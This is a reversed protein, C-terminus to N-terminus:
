PSGQEPAPQPPPNRDSRVEWPHIEAKILQKFRRQDPIPIGQETGRMYLTIHTPPMVFGRGVLKSLDRLFSKLVPIDITQIITEIGPKDQILYFNDTKYFSWDTSIVLDQIDDIDEPHRKLHELLIGADKSIITIHLEPKAQYIKGQYRVPKDLYGFDVKDVHALIFGTEESFTTIVPSHRHNEDALLAAM